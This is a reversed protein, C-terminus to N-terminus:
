AHPEETSLSVVAKLVAFRGAFKEGDCFALFHEMDRFKGCCLVKPQNKYGLLYEIIM